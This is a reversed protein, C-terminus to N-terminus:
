TSLSRRSLVEVLFVEPEGRRLALLFIYWVLLSYVVLEGGDEVFGLGATIPNGLGVVGALDVLLGFFVLAALFVFIDASIKRFTVPGRFYFWLVLAFLVLGAIALAGLEYFRPPLGYGTFLTAVRDGMKQHLWFADDIFFCTLMLVWSLYGPYKTLKLIYLFLLIIWFMKILHYVDMYACIGSINCLAPNPDFIGIIVHLIIFGIDASLLLVLLLSASTDSMKKFQQFISM